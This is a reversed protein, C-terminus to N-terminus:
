VIIANLYLIYLNDLQKMECIFVNMGLLANFLESQCMSIVRKMCEQLNTDSPYTLNDKYDQILEVMHDVDSIDDAKHSPPYKQLIGFKQLSHSLSEQHQNTFRQGPGKCFIRGLARM